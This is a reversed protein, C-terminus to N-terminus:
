GMESLTGSIYARGHNAWRSVGARRSNESATVWRCNSPEYNGANDVRDITLGERYSNALAWAKFAVFDNLWEACVTVGRSRYWRAYRDSSCRDKMKSWVQYLKTRGMPRSYTKRKGADGHTTQFGKHGAPM